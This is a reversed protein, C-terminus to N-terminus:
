PKANRQKRIFRALQERSCDFSRLNIPCYSSSYEDCFQHLEGSDVDDLFYRTAENLGFDKVLKDIFDKRAWNEWDEQKEEWERSSFDEEDLISYDALRDAIEVAKAHAESDPRVLIIEFWGPGWHGFRHAEVDDGEGGLAELCQAFNSRTLCDSDRTQSVPALLWDQRDPLFAGSPDFGTPAFNSYRQLEAPQTHRSM